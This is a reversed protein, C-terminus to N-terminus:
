DTLVRMMTPLKHRKKDCERCRPRYVLTGAASTGNKAFLDLTKTEHCERCEKGTSGGPTVIHSKMIGLRHISNHEAHPMAELNSIDNNLPNGDKHHVVWGAPLKRGHHKEWVLIHEYKLGNATRVVWRAKDSHIAHQTTYAPGWETEKRLKPWTSM